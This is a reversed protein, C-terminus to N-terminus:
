EDDSDFFGIIEANDDICELERVKDLGKCSDQDVFEIDITRQFITGKTRKCSFLETDYRETAIDSFDCHEVWCGGFAEILYADDRLEADTFACNKMNTDSLYCFPNFSSRIKDFKCGAVKCNTFEILKISSFSCNKVDGDMFQLNECNTFKCNIVSSDNDLTVCKCNIFECDVANGLNLEGPAFNNFSCNKFSANPANIPKIYVRSSITHPTNSSEEGNFSCDTFTVLAGLRASICTQPKNQLPMTFDSNKIEFTAGSQVTFADKCLKSIKCNEILVSGIVTISQHMLINSNKIILNGVVKINEGLVVDKDYFNKEEGALIDECIYVTKDGLSTACEEKKLNKENQEM